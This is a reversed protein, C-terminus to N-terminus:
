CFELEKKNKVCYEMGEALKLAQIKDYDEDNWDKILERLRPAIKKCQGATLHGECDSHNLLDVIPDQIKDWKLPGKPLWSFSEDIVKTGVTKITKEVKSYEDYGPIWFGEMLSLCIGIEMALRERFIDFGSYAWQADAHNFGLGM